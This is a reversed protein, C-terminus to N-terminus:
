DFLKELGYGALRNHYYFLLKMDGVIIKQEENLMLIKKAHYIGANNLGHHMIKNIDGKLDQELFPDINLKKLLVLERIRNLTKEMAETFVDLPIKREGEPMRMLDFLDAKEHKQRILQYAVFTVIHSSFVTNERLYSSVIKEGLMRVYEINRQKDEKLEGGSSFYDRINIERDLQDFSRGEDDVRNGFVDMGQGFSILFESDKTFLKYVVKLLDYSNSFQDNEDNIYNERGTQKLYEDILFPAELVFHYNLIVPVIIIKKSFGNQNEKLLNLYQAEITTGLLGLKLKKEISGSLSRDGYPFFMTHCGRHLALTSYTKLTELYLPNKKRRDVKYAGIRNMFFSFMRIGFLNLGAGYLFAPLGLTRAAWGVTVSDLNSFHTPLLVVTHTKALNRISDIQGKLHIRKQVQLYFKKELFNLHAPANLLPYFVLNLIKQAWRYANISFRGAIENKYRLVIEQLLEKELVSAEEKPKQSSFILKEKVNQWFGEEDEPDTSWKQDRIRISELFLTQALVDDLNGNSAVTLKEVSKEYVENEFAERDQSLKVIPWEELNPVVQSYVKVSPIDSNKM